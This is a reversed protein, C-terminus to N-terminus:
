LLMVNLAIIQHPCIAIANCEICNNPTPMYRYNGQKILVKLPETQSMEGLQPVSTTSPVGESDQPNQDINSSAQLERLTDPEPQKTRTNAKKKNYLLVISVIVPPIM